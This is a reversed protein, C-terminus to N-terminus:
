NEQLKGSSMLCNYICDFKPYSMVCLLNSEFDIISVLKKLVDNIVVVLIKSERIDQACYRKRPIKICRM